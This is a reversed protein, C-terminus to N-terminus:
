LKTTVYRGKITAYFTRGVSESSVLSNFEQQPVDAYSYTSGDKFQVRLEMEDVDYGVAAINSSEVNQMEIDAM